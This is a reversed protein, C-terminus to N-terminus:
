GRGDQADFARCRSLLSLPRDRTVSFRLGEDHAIFFRVAVEIDSFNLFLSLIPRRIPSGNAAGLSGNTSTRRDLGRARLLAPSNEQNPSQTPIDTQGLLSPM